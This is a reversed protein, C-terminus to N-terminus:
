LKNQSMVCMEAAMLENSKFADSGRITVVKYMLVILRTKILFCAELIGPGSILHVSFTANIETM